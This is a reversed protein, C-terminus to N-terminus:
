VLWVRPSLTSPTLSAAPAPYLFASTHLSCGLSTVLSSQRSMCEPPWPFLAVIAADALGRGLAAGLYLCIGCCSGKLEVSGCRHSEANDLKMAEAHAPTNPNKMIEKALCM